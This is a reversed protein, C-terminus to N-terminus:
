LILYFIALEEAQLFDSGIRSRYSGSRSCDGFIRLYVSNPKGAFSAIYVINSFGSYCPHSWSDTAVANTLKSM